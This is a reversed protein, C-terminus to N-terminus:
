STGSVHARVDELIEERCRRRERLVAAEQGQHGRVRNFAARLQRRREHVNLINDFHEVCAHRARVDDQTVAM